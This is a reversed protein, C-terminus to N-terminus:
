GRSSSNCSSYRRGAVNSGPMHLFLKLTVKYPLEPLLYTSSLNRVSHDANGSDSSRRTDQSQYSNSTKEGSM